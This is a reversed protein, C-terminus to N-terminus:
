SCPFIIVVMKNNGRPCIELLVNHWPSRRGFLRRGQISGCWRHEELLLVVGEVLYCRRPETTTRNSPVLPKGSSLSPLGIPDLVVGERLSRRGRSNGNDAEDFCPNRGVWMRSGMACSLLLLLDLWLRRRARRRKGRWRWR